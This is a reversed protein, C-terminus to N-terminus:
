FSDDANKANFHKIIRDGYYVALGFILSVALGAFVDIISHQKLMVTSMCVAVTSISWVTRWLWKKGLPNRWAAFVAAMQGIVHLSPCVNTNTDTRYLDAVLQTFYNDNAFSEPRLLQQTPYILYFIVTSGYGLIIFMMYRKFEPVNKLALIILMSIIFAYWLYYPVIFYECFPILDDLPSQVTHFKLPLVSEELWFLFFQSPWFLLMLLHRYEKSFLTKINLNKYNYM